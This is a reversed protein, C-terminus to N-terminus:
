ELRILLGFEYNNLVYEKSLEGKMNPDTVRKTIRFILAEDGKNLRVQIRNVDVRVGTLIEIADSTEKYGIASIFESEMLWKRADELSIKNYKYLGEETIVASNLIYRM